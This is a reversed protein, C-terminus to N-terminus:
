GVLFRMLAARYAEPQELISAHRAPELWVLDAAMIEKKLQFAADIFSPIDQRGCVVLTPAAIKRLLPRLDAAALAECALAYGEGSCRAFCDRVYRVAPGDAAVCDATFWIDLLRDTMAAVGRTRAVAAREHWADRMEDTYRPTTDILVLKDIKDPYNAAFCQAVLGGLSIGALHVRDLAERELLVALQESLDEITYGAAPVPSAGHGPFDYSVLEFQESLSATAIEWLRRDVGLCHLLVLPPGRGVRFIDKM